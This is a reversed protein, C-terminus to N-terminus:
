EKLLQERAYKFPQLRKLHRFHATKLSKPGALRM